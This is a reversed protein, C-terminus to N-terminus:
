RSSSECSRNLRESRLDDRDDVVEMTRRDQHRLPVPLAPMRADVVRARGSESGRRRAYGRRPRLVRNCESLLAHYDFIHELLAAASVMHITGDKIPWREEPDLQIVRRCYRAAERCPHPNLDTGILTCRERTLFRHLTRAGCGVDLLLLPAVWRDTFREILRAGKQIRILKSDSYDVAEAPASRYGLYCERLKM